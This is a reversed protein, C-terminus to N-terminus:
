SEYASNHLLLIAKQLHVCHLHGWMNVDIAYKSLFLTCPQIKYKISKKKQKQRGPRWLRDKQSGHGSQPGWLVHIMWCRNCRLRNERWQNAVLLDTPNNISRSFSDIWLFWTTAVWFAALRQFHSLKGTVANSLLYFSLRQLTNASLTVGGVKQLFGQKFYLEPLCYVGFHWLMSVLAIWKLTLRRKNTGSNFGVSFGGGDRIRARCEEM